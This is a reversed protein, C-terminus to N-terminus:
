NNEKNFIVKFESEINNLADDIADEDDSEWKECIIEAYKLIQEQWYVFLRPDNIFVEKHQPSQMIISTITVLIETVPTMNM